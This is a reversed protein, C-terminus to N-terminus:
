RVVGFKGFPYIRLAIYGLIDYEDILGFNRSDNSIGRNDGLVLVKDEPVVFEYYVTQEDADLLKEVSQYIKDYESKDIKEIFENNVYLKGEQLDYKITDEEIAIVRKVYYSEGADFVIIDDNEPEYFLNWVLVKENNVLTPLMSDGSITCPTVIFNMVFLLIVITNIIFQIIDTFCYIKYCREYWYKGLLINILNYFAIGLSATLAIVIFIYYLVLSLKGSSFFANLETFHALRDNNILSLLLIVFMIAGIVLNYIIGYRYLRNINKKSLTNLKLEEELVKKEENTM